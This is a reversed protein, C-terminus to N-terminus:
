SGDPEVKVLKLRRVSNWAIAGDTGADVLAGIAAFSVALGPAVEVVLMGDEIRAAAGYLSLLEAADTAAEVEALMAHLWAAAPEGLREAAVAGDLVLARAAQTQYSVILAM